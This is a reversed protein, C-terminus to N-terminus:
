INWAEFIADALECENSPEFPLVVSEGFGLRAPLEYCYLTRGDETDFMAALMYRHTTIYATPAFMTM